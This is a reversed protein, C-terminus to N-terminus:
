VTKVHSLSKEQLFLEELQKITSYLTMSTKETAESSWTMDIMKLINFCSIHCQLQATTLTFGWFGISQSTVSVAQHNVTTKGERIVRAPYGQSLANQVDFYMLCSTCPGCFTSHRLTLSLELAHIEVRIGPWATLWVRRQNLTESM